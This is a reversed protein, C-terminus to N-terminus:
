IDLDCMVQCSHQKWTQVFTIGKQQFHLLLTSSGYPSVSSTFYNAFFIAEIHPIRTNVRKM